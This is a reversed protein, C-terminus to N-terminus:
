QANMWTDSGAMKVAVDSFYLHIPGGDATGRHETSVLLPGAKKYGEWTAKVESPKKTGGHLFLLQDIRNDKGIYLNWTDGPTYGGLSPHYKVTILQASGNGLPLAQMGKDQVDASTDWYAHFPFLIWYNDNVFSPDVENKIADSQSSLQSRQYSVKIPKGEKDKGDFTVTNTKPNWEWARSFKGFPSDLNFTYRLGEIQDFSDLGYTKAIPEAVSSHKQSCSAAALVLLLMSFTSIRIVGLAFPASARRPTLFCYRSEERPASSGAVTKRTNRLLAFPASAGADTNRTKRLLRSLNKM